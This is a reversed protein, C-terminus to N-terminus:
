IEDSCKDVGSGNKKIWNMVNIHSMGFIKGVGRGSVGSYFTRLAAAKIEDSKERSKPNLTYKYGCLKCRNRQTGSENIGCRVQGTVGGCKPCARGEIQKAIRM